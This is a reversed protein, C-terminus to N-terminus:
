GRSPSRVNTGDNPSTLNLVFQGRGKKRACIAANGMIGLHIGASGLDAVTASGGGRVVGRSGTVVVTHRDVSSSLWSFPGGYHRSPWLATLCRDGTLRKWLQKYDGMGLRVALSLHNKLQITTAPFSPPQSLRGHCRWPVALAPGCRGSVTWRLTATLLFLM